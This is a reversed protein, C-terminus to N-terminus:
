GKADVNISRALEAIKDATVNLAEHEQTSLTLLEVGAVGEPSLYVPLSLSMGSPGYEGSQIISAPFPKGASHVIAEIMLAGGIGSSWTSTRGSDLAVHRVYWNDVYDLAVGRQEATLEVPNDDVAISGWVPVQGAGHEGVVWCSVSQPAVNLAMAIGTRFRQTDNLTYGLLKQHSWGTREAVWTLLPDVPNTMLIFIGDWNAAVLPDVISAVIKANAALYVDRSTNITLPVAASLVIIDADVAESVDAGRISHAGGLSLADQLDMVHSTIMTPRNDIILIEYPTHTRLLNFAVSSGIGGAGGIIAIKMMVEENLEIPHAFLKSLQGSRFYKVRERPYPFLMGHSESMENVRHCAEKRRSSRLTNM